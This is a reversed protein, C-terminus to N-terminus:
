NVREYISVANASAKSSARAFLPKHDGQANRVFYVFVPENVQKSAAWNKAKLCLGALWEVKIGKPIETAQPLHAVLRASPESAVMGQRLTPQPAVPTPKQVLASGQIAQTLGVIAQLIQENSVRVKTSIANEM